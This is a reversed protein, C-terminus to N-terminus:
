SIANVDGVIAARDLRAPIIWWWERIMYKAECLEAVIVQKGNRQKKELM